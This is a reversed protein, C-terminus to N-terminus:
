MTWSTCFWVVNSACLYFPEVNCYFLSGRLAGRKSICLAHSFSTIRLTYISSSPTWLPRSTRLCLDTAPVHMTPRLLAMWLTASISTDRARTAISAICWVFPIPWLEVTCRKGRRVVSCLMSIFIIVFRFIEDRLLALSYALVMYIVRFLVFLIM